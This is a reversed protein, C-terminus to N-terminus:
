AAIVEYDHGMYEFAAHNPRLLGLEINGNENYAVYKDSAVRVCMLSAGTYYRISIVRDTPWQPGLNQVDDKTDDLWYYDFNTTYIYGVDLKYGGFILTTTDHKVETNRTIVIVDGEKPERGNFTLDVM